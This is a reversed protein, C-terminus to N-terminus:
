LKVFKTGDIFFSKSAIETITYGTVSEIGFLSSTITLKNGSISYTGTTSILGGGASLTVENSGTFTWTQPILGESKYTGNQPKSMNGGCAALTLLVLLAVALAILKKM